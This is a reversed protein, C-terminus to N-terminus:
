AVHNPFIVGKGPAEALRHTQFGEAERLVFGLAYEAGIILVIEDAAVKM